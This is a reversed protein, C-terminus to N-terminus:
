ARDGNENPRNSDTVELSASALSDWWCIGIATM